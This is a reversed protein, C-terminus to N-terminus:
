PKHPVDFSTSTIHGSPFFSSISGVAAKVNNVQITALILSREHQALEAFNPHRVFRVHLCAEDRSVSAYFPPNGHLFDIHFALKEVYFAAAARVKRVFLIPVAGKWSPPRTENQAPQPLMLKGGSTKPVDLDGILGSFIRKLEHDNKGGNRANWLASCATFSLM